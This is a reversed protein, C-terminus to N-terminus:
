LPIYPLLSSFVGISPGPLDIYTQCVSLSSSTQLRNEPSESLTDDQPATTEPQSVRSPVSVVFGESNCPQTSTHISEATSKM